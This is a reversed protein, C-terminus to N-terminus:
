GAVALDEQSCSTFGSEVLVGCLKNMTNEARRLGAYLEDGSGFQEGLYICVALKTAHKSLSIQLLANNNAISERTAEWAKIVEAGAMGLDASAVFVYVIGESAFPPRSHKSPLGAVAFFRGRTAQKPQAPSYAKIHQQDIGDPWGHGEAFDERM